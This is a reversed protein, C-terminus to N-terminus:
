SFLDAVRCSFGPLVPEADLVEDAQLVRAEGGPRHVVVSRGRPYLVWVLRTGAGLWEMVKTHIESATDGPSVVEVVLDPALDPYGAVRAQALREQAVYAADPGRVTDPDRRIRFGTEAAFVAGGLGHQDLFLNLRYQARNAVYGHEGGPPAMEILEGAVLEYRPGTDPLRLLQDATMLARTKAM